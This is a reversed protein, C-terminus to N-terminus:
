DINKLKSGIKFLFNGISKLIKTGFIRKLIVRLNKKSKLYIVSDDILIDYFSKEIKKIRNLEQFINAEDSNKVRQTLLFHIWNQKFSPQSILVKWLSDYPYESIRIPYGVSKKEYRNINLFLSENRSYNHIFDFYTKIVSKNMEMM